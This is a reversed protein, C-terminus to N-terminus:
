QLPSVRDFLDPNSADGFEMIKLRLKSLFLANEGFVAAPELVGCESRPRM